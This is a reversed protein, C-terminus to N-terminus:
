SKVPANRNLKEFTQFLEEMNNIEMLQMMVKTYTPLDLDEGPNECEIGMSDLSEKMLINFIETEDVNEGEKPTGMKVFELFVKGRLPEMEEIQKDTVKVLKQKKNAM